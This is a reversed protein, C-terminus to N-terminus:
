QIFIKMALGKNIALRSGRISIVLCGENDALPVVEEGPLIGLNELHRKTKLDAIVRSILVEKGIPAVALPM